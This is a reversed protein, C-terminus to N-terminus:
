DSRKKHLQFNIFWNVQVGYKFIKKDLRAKKVVKALDSRKKTLQFNLFLNDKVDLKVIKKYLRAKRVVKEKDSLFYIIKYVM